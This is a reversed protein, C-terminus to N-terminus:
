DWRDNRVTGPGHDKAALSWSQDKTTAELRGHRKAHRIPTPPAPVHSSTLGPILCHRM